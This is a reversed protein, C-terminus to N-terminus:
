FELRASVAVSPAEVSYASGRFYHLRKNLDEEFWGMINYADARLTLKSTPRYELGANWFVSPGYADDYGDDDLAYSLPSSLSNNWDALAEAGPFGWYARLSSNLSWENNFDHILAIKTVHNAWNALDDGYGYPEATIGQITSSTELNADLLKTYGHSLTLSTKRTRFSIEPEIGWTEFRGVAVSHNQRADFGIADNRQVFLGLGFKWRTDHQRDYRFELSDLSETTGESGTQVYEQRLEGDGNRRMARAAILKVTDKASPRHVLALRPSFLWGTYSHRDARASAFSTWHDAFDWRHEALLSITNTQWNDREPPVGPAPGYGVPAGDFWMRSFEAGVAASQEDSLTWTGLVRGYLEREERDDSDPYLDYLWLRYDYEGYSLFTELNFRNSLDEKYKTALTFQRNLGRRGQEAAALDGSLLNTRQPRVIGGGQTYRAWLETPGNVYSAHFKLKLKDGADHLNPVDFSVPEGSIVDPMAGPTVFSKGFVYPSDDQDAGDQDAVGAYLFLGSDESFKHGLRTEVATFRDEFGQRIQADVGEFTFANHTELNVVGALAGAGYTASAPGHITTVSNLDGLLPLDRESEAGVFMRNNVVKGNVRLLYKDDRDSIIGRMGFHNLHTNHAIIQTNPTHIELLENLTRAGSKAITTKDMVSTKAPVLRVPTPILTSTVVRIQSLEEIDMWGFDDPEHLMMQGAEDSSGSQAYGELSFSVLLVAIVVLTITGESIHRYREGSRMILGGVFAPQKQGVAPQAMSATIDLGMTMGWQIFLSFIADCRGKEDGKAAAM